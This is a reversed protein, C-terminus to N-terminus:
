NIRVLGGRVTTSADGAVTTNAGKLEAAVTATAKVNVGKLELDTTAEISVKQGTIKVDGSSATVTVDKMAKVEIPGESVLSVAADPKQVLSLQQKGDQTRINIKEGDTGELFELVMGTRSVFARRKVQGDNSGVHEGWVLDPKDKGNYLGGLIFPQQFSNQGFAVLVEDGVEPLWAVGRKDGAGLQLVRAWGSVYQDSLVPFTVKVRGLADPDMLDSVVASVVGPLPSSASPAAGSALGYLSRESDNSVAFSTLYGLEPSFEHRSASLTYRGEFPKGVGVLSVAEGSRLKPNGRAVGELGAFGGALHGALAKATADCQAQEEYLPWPALYSPARADQALRAPTVEALQISTTEAPANAVLAKKEKVSWGRVEVDPVQDSSTISARLSTLNVGRELVLQNDRAGATGGPAEAARTATTFSLAGDVVNVQCGSQRALRSLFEWDTVGDQAVHPLVATPGDISGASLSVRQAVKRAIDGVTHNVYAEVRRGRFLRHSTDLGRIVTHQGEGSVESELATIEGTLLLHPGGSGSDQVLLRVAAGIKFGGKEIVTGGSDTFRLLFLDPVNSSDDVYGHVLLAAIDAPLPTGEVEVVLTNSFEEGHPM